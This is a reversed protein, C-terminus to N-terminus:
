SRTYVGRFDAAACQRNDEALLYPGAIRLRLICANLPAHDISDPKGDPGIVFAIRNGSPAIPGRIVLGYLEASIRMQRDDIREITIRKTGDVWYGTWNALFFNDDPGLASSPLWGRFKRGGDGSVLACTYKGAVRGVLVADGAVVYARM